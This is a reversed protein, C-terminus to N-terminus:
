PLPVAEDCGDVRVLEEGEADAVARCTMRTWGGAGFPDQTWDTLLEVTGDRLVRHVTAVTGGEMTGQISVWEAEDGNEAADRFCLRVLPDVYIMPQPAPPKEIGCFRLPRRNAVIEPVSEDAWEPLWV